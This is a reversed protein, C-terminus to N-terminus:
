VSQLFTPCVIVRGHFQLHELAAELAEGGVNDWYLDIPGFKALASSYSQEKYNFVEDAGLSKMYELKAASSASAIVIM